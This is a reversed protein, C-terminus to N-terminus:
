MRNLPKLGLLCMGSCLIKKACLYVFLRARAIEVTESSKVRIKSFIVNVQKALKMLYDVLIHPEHTDLCEHLIEPYRILYFSLRQVLDNNIHEFDIESAPGIIIEKNNEQISCIRCHTYQLYPGTMGETSTCREISFTYDKRRKAGFDQVIIGSIALKLATEELDEKCKTGTKKMIDLIHNKTDEIIDELFIVKGKRTSMKLVMGYGVHHIIDKDTGIKKLAANLKIFYDNQESAVVYIIKEPNYKEIRDFVAAIDRTQYLTSGDSKLVIFKGLDGLDIVMSGDEDKSVAHSNLIINKGKEGYESEGSYVDFFVGLKEYIEKYKKISLERIGRWLNINEEKGEEMEKFFIKASMEIKPDEKAKNSVEVYIKFLYKLPDKELEKRQDLNMNNFFKCEKKLGLVSSANSNVKESVQTGHNNKNSYIVQSLYYGIMGFQKGWDGLYNISTVNYKCKLYLNKLFNGLITSRLHGVHFIKAINPSSYEIIMNKNQGIEIDKKYKEEYVECLFSKLLTKKYIKIFLISGSDKVSEFSSSLKIANILRADQNRDRSIKPLMLVFDGSEPKSSIMLAEEIQQYSFEELCKKIETVAQAKIKTPTLSSPEM